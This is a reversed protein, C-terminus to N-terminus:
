ERGRLRLFIAESDAPLPEQQLVLTLREPDLRSLFFDAAKCMEALEAIREEATTGKWVEVERRIHEDSCFYERQRELMAIQEPTYEDAAM